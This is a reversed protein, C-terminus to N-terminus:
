KGRSALFLLISSMIPIILLCIIVLKSIENGNNSAKIGSMEDIDVKISGVFIDSEVRIPIKNDDDTVWLTLAENDKFVRGEILQPKVKITRFTGLETKLNERKEFKFRLEYTKGDLYFPVPFVEGPKAGIIENAPVRSDSCGIWLLPPQQGKALDKFFEPDLDLQEEVWKKNNDLIRKYFDSM